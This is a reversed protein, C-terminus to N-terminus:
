VLNFHDVITQASEIPSSQSTDIKLITDIPVSADRDYSTLQAELENKDMLKRFQNRSEQSVRSLLVGLPATFQIFHITGGHSEIIKKTAYVFDDESEDGTYVYTFILNRNHKAAAEFAALRLKRTLEFLREDFDPLIERALDLTLHNHFLKYRTLKELEKSVTFKGTAPPGYLFLM